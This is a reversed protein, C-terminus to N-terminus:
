HIDPFATILDTSRMDKVIAAVKPFLINNELHFHCYLDEEFERLLKYLIEFANSVYLPVAYGNAFQRILRVYGAIESHETEMQDIASIIFSLQGINIKTQSQNAESLLVIAPFLGDEKKQMNLFLLNKMNIFCESIRLTEPYRRGNVKAVKQALDIIFPAHTNVYQHHLQILYTSLFGVEWTQFDMQALGSLSGEAFLEVQVDELSLALQLCAEKLTAKGGCVFDIDLKKFVGSRRYDGAVIAGITEEGSIAEAALYNLRPDNMM